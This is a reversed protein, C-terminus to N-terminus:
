ELMLIMGTTRTWLSAESVRGRPVGLPGMPQIFLRTGDRFEAVPDIEDDVLCVISLSLSNSNPTFLDIM